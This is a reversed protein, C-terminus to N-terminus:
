IQGVSSETIWFTKLHMAIIDAQAKYNEQGLLKMLCTLRQPAFVFPSHMGFSFSHM